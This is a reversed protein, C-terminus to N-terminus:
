GDSQEPETAYFVRRGQSLVDNIAASLQWSPHKGSLQDRMEAWEKLTMTIKITAEIQDPNEIVLRTKMM